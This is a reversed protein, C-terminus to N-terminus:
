CLRRTHSTYVTIIFLSAEKNDSKSLHRYLMCYIQKDPLRHRFCECWPFLLQSCHGVATVNTYSVTKYVVKFVGFCLYQGMLIDTGKRLIFAL